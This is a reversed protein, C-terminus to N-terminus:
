MSRENIRQAEMSFRQNIKKKESIAYMNQTGSPTDSVWLNLVGAVQAGDVYVGQYSIFPLLKGRVLRNSGLENGETCSAAQAM